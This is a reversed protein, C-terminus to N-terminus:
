NDTINKYLLHLLERLQQLQTESLGHTLQKEMKVKNKFMKKELVSAKDTLLVIRSRRDEPNVMIEILKKSKMRKLIDIVTPHKLKLHMEIDKQTSKKNQRHFLFILIELQSYTLDFQKLQTNGYIKMADHLKKLLFGIDNSENNM